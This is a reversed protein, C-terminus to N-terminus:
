TLHLREATQDSKHHSLRGNCYATYGTFVFADSCGEGNGGLKVPGGGAAASSVSLAV